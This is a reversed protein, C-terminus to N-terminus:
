ILLILLKENQVAARLTRWSWQYVMSPSVKFPTVEPNPTLVSNPLVARSCSVATIFSFSNRLM